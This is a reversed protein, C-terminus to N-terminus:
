KSSPTQNGKHGFLRSIVVFCIPTLYIGLFTASLVGCVVTTGVANQAGSGAGSSLALPLVGLTFALSTMIIPRLRLRAAQITAEYLDMGSKRLDKAFEVILIANKASLGIVALVGIQFYVDNSMGFATVGLLAGILGTPVGMLVSLPITWSEYLAALCLFVVALSLAYLLWALNGSQQEQFSMGTWLYGFGDPLEAALAEMAAMAEGSAHGPAAEGQIKVAPVGEYRELQPSGSTSTVTLFSAFPVMEGRANRVHYREFDAAQMRFPADAQLYVKKTRGRDMFDNVYVSGWYAAVTDNIVGKDLSLAGAKDLDIQLEYQEVDEMGGHRVNRLLPIEAARELLLSRAEMLAAHGRGTLDMLEFEFGAARAMEKVPAPGFVTVRADPMNGLARRVRAYIAEVQLDPTKREDWHKLSVFAQGLNHGSGIFSSGAMTMVHLAAKDEKELLHREVEDLVTRTRELSAGPPLQVIVYMAGQDENPLFSSPLRHYLLGIALIGITLAVLGRAPRALLAGVQNKYRGAANDFKANFARFFRWQKRDHAHPRLLTACLAPTLSLAVLASLAMSTVITLSFQRYIIGVSGPMFAMPVFVAAIVAAVGVLAGTIQRMSAIAAAKPLLGEDRMLRETNEVVVIADDVLLGISLVMGFLTLTNISFGAAAMVGFTGLLVVPIAITPILTARWSQLFLYMVLFVLVIAEGLTKFVARISIEVFPTTDYTHVYKFGPPFVASLSALKEKIGTATELANAGAALLFQLAIAPNGNYKVLTNFTEGNLEIRAVDRLRLQAGDPHTRLLIDEFQSVDTLRSAANVTINIEQGDVTPCAGVQGGTAQRNQARIAAVVDSPNLQYQQFKEPDCWIRMAYQAGLFNISGVGPLRSLPDKLNSGVYDGLDATTMSGGESYFGTILLVGVSSKTVSIGQRQVEDPLLPTALQLKNQVQVQAIDVNTGNEFTFTLTAQGNSDSTSSMYLLKDIGSIQQEIVQTVTEEVTRASAGPYKATVTVQPSAIEPYQAVPLSFLSLSGAMMVLIALVWAFIPRQIFFTSM